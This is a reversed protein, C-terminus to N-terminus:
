VLLNWLEKAKWSQSEMILMEWASRRGPGMDEILVHSHMLHFGSNGGVNGGVGAM